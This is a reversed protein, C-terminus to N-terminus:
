NSFLVRELFNPFTIPSQPSVGGQNLSRLKQDTLKPTQRRTLDAIACNKWLILRRGIKGDPKIYDGRWQLEWYPNRKGRKRLTGGQYRRRAVKKWGGQQNPGGLKEANLLIDM